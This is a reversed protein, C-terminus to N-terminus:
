HNGSTPNPQKYTSSFLELAEIITNAGMEKNTIAMVQYCDDALWGCIEWYGNMFQVFYVKPNDPDRHLNRTVFPLKKNRKGAWGIWDM